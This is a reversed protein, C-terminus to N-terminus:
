VQKYEMEWKWNLCQSLKGMKFLSEPQLHSAHVLLQLKLQPLQHLFQKEMVIPYVVTFHTKHKVILLVTMQVTSLVQLWGQVISAHAACHLTLNLEPAHVSMQQVIQHLLYLSSTYKECHPWCNRNLLTIM